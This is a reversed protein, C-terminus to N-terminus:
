KRSIILSAAAGSFAAVLSIFWVRLESKAERKIYDTELKNVKDDLKDQGKKLEEIDNLIKRLYDHTTKLRPNFEENLLSM